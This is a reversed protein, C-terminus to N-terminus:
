GACGDWMAWMARVLRAHPRFLGRLPQPFVIGAGILKCQTHFREADIDVFKIGAVAKIMM